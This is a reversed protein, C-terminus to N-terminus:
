GQKLSEVLLNEALSPTRGTRFAIDLGTRIPKKNIFLRTLNDHGELLYEPIVAIGYGGAVIELATQHNQVVLDPKRHKLSALFQPANKKFWTGFCAFNENLDILRAKLLDEPRKVPSTKLFHPSSVILHAAVNLPYKKFLKSNQFHVLIGIDLNNSLLAQEIQVGDAEVIEISVDPHALCFRSVALGLSLPNSRANVIGLRIHGQISTKTGRILSAEDELRGLSEKGLLYLREGEKSLRVSRGSRELLRVDLEQELAQIQQSIASQSRLLQRSALTFSKLEAVVTFTKLKNYDMLNEM